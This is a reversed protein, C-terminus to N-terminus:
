DSDSDSYQFARPGTPRARVSRQQNRRAAPAPDVKRSGGGSSGDTSGAGQNPAFSVGLAESRGANKEIRDAIKGKNALVAVADEEAEEKPTGDDLSKGSGNISYLPMVKKARRKRANVVVVAAAALLVVLVAASAGAVVGVNRKVWSEAEDSPPVGGGPAPTASGGDPPAPTAPPVAVSIGQAAFTLLGVNREENSTGHRTMVLDEYRTEVWTETVVNNSAGSSTFSEDKRYVVHPQVVTAQALGRAAGEASAGEGPGKLSRRTAQGKSVVKSLGAAGLTLKVDIEKVVALPVAVPIVPETSTDTPDPEELKRQVAVVRVVADSGASDLDNYLDGETTLDDLMLVALAMEGRVGEARAGVSATLGGFSASVSVSVEGTPPAEVKGLVFSVSTMSAGIFSDGAYVGDALLPMLDVLSGMVRAIATPRRQGDSGCGSHGVAALNNLARLTCLRSRPRLQLGQAVALGMMTEMADSLSSVGTTGLTQAYQTMDAVTCAVNEHLLPSYPLASALAKMHKAARDSASALSVLGAPCGPLAVAGLPKPVCFKKGYVGLYQLALDLDGDRVHIEITADLEANAQNSLAEDDRLTSALRRRGVADASRFAPSAPDWDPGDARLARRAAGSGSAALGEDENRKVDIISTLHVIESTAGASDTVYGVILYRSRPLSGPLLFQTEALSTAVTTLPTERNAARLNFLSPLASAATADDALGLSTVDVYAFEYYLPLDGPDDQWDSLKATFVTVGENYPSTPTSASVSIGGGWPARNAEVAVTSTTGAAVGGGTVKFRYTQGGVLAGAKLRLRRGETKGDTTSDLLSKSDKLTGSELTWAMLATAPNVDPNADTAEVILPVAQAYLVFETSPSVREEAPTLVEVRHTPPDQGEELARISRLVSVTVTRGESLPEKAIRVSFRYTSGAKLLAASPAEVEVYVRSILVAADTERSGFCPSGASVPQWAGAADQVVEECSWEFNFATKEGSVPDRADDPDIPSATIEFPVGFPVDADGGTVRASIPTASVAVTAETTGKYGAFGATSPAATFEFIYTEGVQLVGPPISLTRSSLSNSYNAFAADSSFASRAIAAGRKVTWNFTMSAIASPQLSAFITGSCKAVDIPEVEAKIVVPESKNVNELLSLGGAISVRPAPFNSKTVQTSAEVQSIAGFFNTVRVLVTYTAGATLKSAAVTLVGTTALDANVADTLAQGATTTDNTTAGEIVFTYSLGNDRGLGGTSGSADVVLDDCVGLTRPAKINILPKPIDAGAPPAVAYVGTVPFSNGYRNKIADEKFQLTSTPDLSTPKLTPKTGFLVVLESKSVWQCISDFVRETAVLQSGLKLLSAETFVNDCTTLPASGEVVGANTETDFLFVVSAGSRTFVPYGDLVQPAPGKSVSVAFPSGPAAEGDLTLILRYDGPDRIEYVIELVGEGPVRATSVTFTIVGQDEAVQTADAPDAVALAVEPVTDLSTMVNRSLDFLRVFISAPSGARAAALGAGFVESSVTSPAGATVRVPFPRQVVVPTGAEKVTVRFLGSIGPRLRLRYKGETSPVLHADLTDAFSSGIAQGAGGSLLLVTAALPPATHNVVPNGFDDLPKIDIGTGSAGSFFELEDFSLVSPDMRTERPSYVSHDVGLALSRRGLVVSLPDAPDRVAFTNTVEFTYSGMATPVCMVDYLGSVEQVAIQCKNVEKTTTDVLSAEFALPGSLPDYLQRNGFQDRPDVTVSWPRGAYLLAGTDGSDRQGALRVRSVKQSTVPEAVWEVEYVGNRGSGTALGIPSRNDGSLFVTQRGAVYSTWSLTFENGSLEPLRLDDSAPSVLPFDLWQTVLGAEEGLPVKNTDRVVVKMLIPKGVVATIPVGGPQLINGVQDVVVSNSANGGGVNLNYATILYGDSGITNGKCLFGDPQDTGDKTYQVTLRFSYNSGNPDKPLTLFVRHISLSLDVPVPDTAVASLSPGGGTLAMTTKINWGSPLAGVRNGFSDLVLVDFYNKNDGQLVADLGLSYIQSRSVASGAAAGAPNGPSVVAKYSLGGAPNELQRGKVFFDFRLTGATEPTFTYEYLGRKRECKQKEAASTGAATICAAVQTEGNFVVTFPVDVASGDRDGTIRLAFKDSPLFSSPPITPDNHTHADAGQMRVNNHEDRMSVYLTAADGAKMIGLQAVVFDTGQVVTRRLDIPGAVIEIPVKDFADGQEGIRGSVKGQVPVITEYRLLYYGSPRPTMREFIRGASGDNTILEAYVDQPVHDERTVRNGNSDRAIVLFQQPDRGATFVPEIPATPVQVLSYQPAMDGPLVEGEVAWTYTKHAVVLRLPGAAAPTFTFLYQGVRANPTVTVDVYSVGKVIITEGAAGGYYMMADESRNMSVVGADDVAQLVLKTVRGARLVLGSATGNPLPATAPVACQEKLNANLTPCLLTSQAGDMDSTDLQLIWAKGDKSIKEPGRQLLLDYSGAVAVKVSVAYMGTQYDEVRVVASAPLKTVASPDSLAQIRSGIVQTVSAQFDLGGENIDNNFRDRAQLIYHMDRNASVTGMQGTGSGAVYTLSGNLSLPKVNVSGTVGDPTFLQGFVRTKLLAVGAKETTITGTYGQLTQSYAVPVNVVTGDPYELTASVVPEFLVSAAPTNALLKGEHSLGDKVSAPAENKLRDVLSRQTSANFLPTGATDRLSLTWEVTTGALISELGSSTISSRAVSPLGAAVDVAVTRGVETNTGPTVASVTHNGLVTPTHQLRWATHTHPPFNGVSVKNGPVDMAPVSSVAVDAPMAAPTGSVGPLGLRVDAATPQFVLGDVPNGNADMSVYDVALPFGVFGTVSTLAPDVVTMTVPDYLKTVWSAHQGSYVLPVALLEAGQINVAAGAGVQLMVNIFHQGSRAINFSLKYRGDQERTVPMSTTPGHVQSDLAATVTLNTDTSMVRPGRCNGALKAARGVLSACPQYTVPDGEDAAPVEITSDGAKLTYLAVYLSSDRGAEAALNGEIEALDPDVPGTNPAGLAPVVPISVVETPNGGTALRRNPLAAAQYELEIEVTGAAQAVWTLQYCKCGGDFAEVSASVDNVSTSTINSLFTIKVSKVTVAEYSDLGDVHSGTIDVPRVVLAQGDIANAITVGDISPGDVHLGAVANPVSAITFSLGTTTVGNFVRGITVTMCSRKNAACAAPPKFKMLVNGPRWSFVDPETIGDGVGAASKKHFTLDAGPMTTTEFGGTLNGTVVQVTAALDVAAPDTVMNGFGDRPEVLLWAFEGAVAPVADGSLASTVLPSGASDGTGMKVTFRSVDAPAPLVGVPYPVGSNIAVDANTGSDYLFVALELDATVTPTFLLKWRGNRDDVATIRNAETVTVTTGALDGANLDAPVSYSDESSLLVGRTPDDARTGYLHATIKPPVKAADFVTPNGNADLLELTLEAPQGAVLDKRPFLDPIAGFFDSGWLPVGTSAEIIRSPAAAPVSSVPYVSFPSGAVHSGNILVDLVYPKVTADTDRVVTDIQFRIEYAPPASASYKDTVSPTQVSGVGTDPITMSVTITDNVSMDQPKGDSTAPYVLAFVPVGADAYQMTKGDPRAVTTEAAATAGAGVTVDTGGVQLLVGGITVEINSTGVAQPTWTLDFKGPTDPDAAATVVVKTGAPDTIEGLVQVDGTSVVPNEFADKVLVSATAEIAVTYPGLGTGMASKNTDPANARVTMKESPSGRVPSNSLQVHVDFDGAKTPVYEVNLVHPGEGPLEGAFCANSFTECALGGCSGISNSSGNAQRPVLTLTCGPLVKRVGPAPTPAATDTSSPTSASTEGPTPAATAPAATTPAPTPGPPPAVEQLLSEFEAPNYFEDRVALYVAAKVGAVGGRLGTGYIHSHEASIAQPSVTITKQASEGDSGKILVPEGALSRMYVAMEWTGSQEIGTITARYDYQGSAYQAKSRELWFERFHGAAEGTLGKMQVQFADGFGTQVNGHEDKPTVTVPITGGATLTEPIDTSLVTADGSTPGPLIDVVRPWSSFNSTPSAETPLSVPTVGDSGYLYLNYKGAKKPQYNVSYTGNNYNLLFLQETFAGTSLDTVEDATLEDEAAGGVLTMKARFSTPTGGRTLSSGFGQDDAAMIVAEERNGAIGDRLVPQAKSNTPSAVITDDFGQELCLNTGSGICGDDVQVGNFAKILTSGLYVWVNYTGPADATFTVMYYGRLVETVTPSITPLGIAVMANRTASNQPEVTVWVPQGPTVGGNRFEDLLQVVFSAQKTESLAQVGGGFIITHPLYPDGVELLPMVPLNGLSEGGLEGRIQMDGVVKIQYTVKYVQPGAEWEYVVAPDALDAPVGRYSNRELYVKLGTGGHADIAARDVVQNGFRDVVRVYFSADQGAKASTLGQGYAFSKVADPAAPTVAVTSVCGNAAAKVGGVWFHVDWTGAELVQFDVTYMSLDTADREVRLHGGKVSQVTRDPSTLVVDVDYTLDDVTPVGERDRLQIAASNSTGAVMSAAEVACVSTTAHWTTTVTKVPPSGAETETTVYWMPLSPKIEIVTDAGIAGQNTVNKTVEVTYANALTGNLANASLRVVADASTAAFSAACAGAELALAVKAAVAAHTAAGKGADTADIDAADVVYPDLCDISGAQVVQITDGAKWAGGLTISDQEAAAEAAAVASEVVTATAKQGDVEFVEVVYFGDSSAGTVSFTTDLTRTVEVYELYAGDVLKAATAKDLAEALEATDFPGYVSVQAAVASATVLPLVNGWADRPQLRVDMTSGTTGDRLGSGLVSSAARDFAGATVRINPLCPLETQLLSSVKKGPNCVRLEHFYAELIYEGPEVLTITARLVSQSVSPAPWGSDNPAEELALDYITNDPLRRLVARAEQEPHMTLSNNYKDRINLYLVLEDGATIDTSAIPEVEMTPPVWPVKSQSSGTVTQASDTVLWRTRRSEARVIFPSGFVPSGGVSVELSYIQAVTPTVSATWRGDAGLDSFLVPVEATSSSSQPFKLTSVVQLAAQDALPSSKDAVISVTFAEDVNAVYMGNINPISLVGFVEGERRAQNIAEVDRQNAQQVGDFFTSMRYKGVRELKFQVIYNGDGGDKVTADVVISPENINVLKVGLSNLQGGQRIRNGYADRGEIYLVAEQQVRVVSPLSSVSSNGSPRNPVVDVSITPLPCDCNPDDPVGDANSDVAPSYTVPIETGNATVAAPRWIALDQVDQLFIEVQYTGTRTLQTLGEQTFDFVQTDPIDVGDADKAREQLVVVEKVDPVGEPADHADASIATPTLRLRWRLTESFNLYDDKPRLTFKVDGAILTTDFELLTKVEVPVNPRVQMVVMRDTDSAENVVRGDGSAACLICGLAYGVKATNAVRDADAAGPRADLLPSTLGKLRVQFGYKAAANTPAKFSVNIRANNVADADMAYSANHLSSSYEVCDVSPTCTPPDADLEFIRLEVKDSNDSNRILNGWIDKAEIYMSAADGAIVTGPYVADSWFRVTSTDSIEGANVLVSKTNSLATGTVTVNIEYLAARYTKLTLKTLEPNEAVAAQSYPPGLAAGMYVFTDDWATQDPNKPGDAGNMASDLVVNNVDFGTPRLNGWQDKALLYFEPWADSVVFTTAPVELTSGAAFAGPTVRVRLPYDVGKGGGAPATWTALATISELDSATGSARLYVLNWGVSTLPLDATYTGDGVVTFPTSTSACTYGKPCACSNETRDLFSMRKVLLRDNLAANSPFSAKAGIYIRSGTQAIAVTPLTSGNNFVGETVEWEAGAATDLQRFMVIEDSLGADLAVIVPRHSQDTTLVPSKINSWTCGLAACPAAADFSPLGIETEVDYTYDFLEPLATNDQHGLMLLKAAGGQYTRWFQVSTWQKGAFTKTSTWSGPAGGDHTLVKTDNGDAVVAIRLKSATAGVSWPLGATTFVATNVGRAGAIEWTKGAETYKYCTPMNTITVGLVQTTTNENYCVVPSGMHAVQVVATGGCDPLGGDTCNLNIQGQTAPSVFDGTTPTMPTWTSGVLEVAFVRTDCTYALVVDAGSDARTAYMDFGNPAVPTYDGTLSSRCYIGAGLTEWTSSAVNFRRTQVSGTTSVDGPTGGTVGPLLVATADVFAVVVNGSKDVVMKHSAVASASLSSVTADEVTAFRTRDGVLARSLVGSIDALGQRPACISATVEGAGYARAGATIANGYSDKATLTVTGTSAVRSQLNTLGITSDALSMQGYAVTFDIQSVCEGGFASMATAGAETVTVHVARTSALGATDTSTATVKWTGAATLAQSLSIDKACAILLDGRPDAVSAGADAVCWGEKCYPKLAPCGGFGDATSPLVSDITAISTNAPVLGEISTAFNFKPMQSFDTGAANWGGNNHADAGVKKDTVWKKLWAAANVELSLELSAGATFLNAGTDNIVEVKQYQGGGCSGGNDTANQLKAVGEIESLFTAARLRYLDQFETDAPVQPARDVYLHYEKTYAADGTIGHAEALVTLTIKTTCPVPWRSSPCAAITIASSASGPAVTEEALVPGTCSSADANCTDDARVKVTAVKSLAGTGQTGAGEPSVTMTFPATIDAGRVVTSFYSFGHDDRLRYDTTGGALAFPKGASDANGESGGYGDADGSTAVPVEAQGATLAPVAVVWGVSPAIQAIDTSEDAAARTVTIKYTQTTSGDEASVVIEVYSVAETTPSVDANQALDIAAGTVTGSVADTISMTGADTSTAGGFSDVRKIVFSARSNNDTVSCPCTAHAGCGAAVCTPPTSDASAVTFQLDKVRWDAPAAYEFTGPDFAPELVLAADGTTPTLVVSTLQANTSQTRRLVQITYEQWTGSSNNYVKANTGNYPQYAQSQVRVKFTFLDGATLAVPATLDAATFTTGAQCDALIDTSPLCIPGLYKSAASGGSTASALSDTDPADSRLFIRQFAEQGADPTIRLRVQTADSPVEVSYTLHGPAFGTTAGLADAGTGGAIGQYLVGSSPWYTPTPTTPFATGDAQLVELNAVSRVWSRGKRTISLTYTTTQSPDVADKVVLEVKNVRDDLGEGTSVLEAFLFLGEPPGDAQPSLGTKQFDVVDPAGASPSPGYQLIDVTCSTCTWTLRVDMANEAGGQATQGTGAVIARQPDTWLQCEHPVEGTYSATGPDFAPTLDVVTAANCRKVV